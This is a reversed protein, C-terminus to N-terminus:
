YIIMWIPWPIWIWVSGLLLASTSLTPIIIFCLTIASIMLRKQNNCLCGWWINTIYFLKFRVWSRSQLLPLFLSSVSNFWPGRSLYTFDGTACTGLIGPLNEGGGRTLSGPMCWPVHTAAWPSGKLDTAPFVNGPMGPAHAVRLKVFITLPGHCFSSFLDSLKTSRCCM